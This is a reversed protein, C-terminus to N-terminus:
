RMGQDDRIWAPPEPELAGNVAVHRTRAWRYGWMPGYPTVVTDPIQYAPDSQAAALTVFRYHDRAFLALVSDILDANLKNDHLLMVEPPEYGLVRENLEAYYTIEAQTHALYATRVRAAAATDGQALLRVYTRNFMWDENEITCTAVRYGRRALFRAVSDHKDRTDGTHNMPFRFYAPPREAGEGRVIEAEISDISLANFDPHSYSHNGLDFGADVWEKLIRVGSDGLSAVRSRIVFATAPVHRRVLPAIIARNIAEAPAGGPVIPLDDFTIAVTRQHPPGSLGVACCVVIPWLHM